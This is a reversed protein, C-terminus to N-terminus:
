CKKRNQPDLTELIEVTSTFKNELWLALASPLWCHILAHIHQILAFVTIARHMCNMRKDVSVQHMLLQTNKCKYKNHTTLATRHVDNGCWWPSFETLEERWKGKCFWPVTCSSSSSSVTDEALSLRTTNSTPLSIKYTIHDSHWQSKDDISISPMGLFKPGRQHM